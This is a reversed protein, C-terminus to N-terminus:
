TLMSSCVQIHPVASVESLEAKWLVKLARFKNKWNFLVVVFLCKLIVKASCIYWFYLQTTFDVLCLFLSWYGCLSYSRPQSLFVTLCKCLFYLLSLLSSFPYPSWVLGAPRQPRGFCLYCTSFDAEVSARDFKRLANDVSLSERRAIQFLPCKAGTLWWESSLGEEAMLQSAM